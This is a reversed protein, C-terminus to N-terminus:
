VINFYIYNVYYFIIEVSFFHLFLLTIIIFFVALCLKYKKFKKNNRFLCNKNTFFSLM